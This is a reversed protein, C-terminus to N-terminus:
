RRACLRDRALRPRGKRSSTAASTSWGATTARRVSLHDRLLPLHPLPRPAAPDQRSVRGGELLQKMLYIRGRPGDLEDGLLQYTPCTAICFGCHVCDRLIANAEKGEPTDRIFDALNTKM